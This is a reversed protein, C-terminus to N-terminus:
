LLRVVDDEIFDILCRKLAEPSIMLNILRIILRFNNVKRMKGIIMQQESKFRSGKLKISPQTKFFLSFEIKTNLIKM